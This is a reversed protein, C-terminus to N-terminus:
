RKEDRWIMGQLYVGLMVKTTRNVDHGRSNKKKKNRYIINYLTYVGTVTIIYDSIRKILSGILRVSTAVVSDIFNNM